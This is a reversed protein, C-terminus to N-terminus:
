RDQVPALNQSRLFPRWIAVMGLGHFLLATEIPALVHRAAARAAGGEVGGRPDDIPPGEHGLAHCLQASRRVFRCRGGAKSSAAEVGRTRTQPLLASLARRPLPPAAHCCADTAAM